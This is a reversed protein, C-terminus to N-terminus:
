RSRIEDLDVVGDASEIAPILDVAERLPLADPDTYVGRLGLSHGVLYEVADPDAGLRRLGTVLGKRFAHDPRGVYIEPRAETREWARRVDRQRVVRSQAGNRGSEILWGERRGWGALEDVLHRSIPIVRGAKESKTKGLEGRVVLIALDLDFDSWQLGMVQQVRLGTYREVILVRQLWGRCAMVCADMERWTPAITPKAALTPLEIRKPRPVFEGLDDDDYAWEWAREVRRVYKEIASAKPPKRKSM